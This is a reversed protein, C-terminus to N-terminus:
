KFEEPMDPLPMWYLVECELEGFRKPFWGWLENYNCLHYDIVNNDPNKIKLIGLVLDGPTPIKEKADIWKSM